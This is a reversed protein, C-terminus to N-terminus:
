ENLSSIGSNLLKKRALALKMRAVAREIIKKIITKTVFPKLWIPLWEHIQDVVYNYREQGKKTGKITEEAECVLDYVVDRFKESTLILYVFL